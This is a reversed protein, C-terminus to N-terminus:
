DELMLFSNKNIAYEAHENNPNIALAKEFFKNAKVYDKKNFKSVGRNYSVRSRFEKDKIQMGIHTIGVLAIAGAGAVVLMNQLVAGVMFGLVGGTGILPNFSVKLGNLTDEDENITEKKNKKSKQKEESTGKEKQFLYVKTKPEKRHVPKPVKVSSDLIKYYSIHGNLIKFLVHVAEKLNQLNESRVKESIHLIYYKDEEYPELPEIVIFKKNGNYRVVTKFIFGDTDTVQTTEESVSTEDLNLNFRLYWYIKEKTNGIDTKMKETLTKDTSHVKIKDDSYGM